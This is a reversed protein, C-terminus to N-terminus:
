RVTGCMLVCGVDSSYIRDKELSLPGWCHDRCARRDNSAMTMQFFRAAPYRRRLYFSKKRVNEADGSSLASHQVSLRHWLQSASVNVNLDDRPKSM